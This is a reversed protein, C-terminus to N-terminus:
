DCVCLLLRAARCADVRPCDCSRQCSRFFVLETAAGPLMRRSPPWGVFERSVALNATASGECGGVKVNPQDIVSHLNKVSACYDMKDLVVIQLLVPCSVLM